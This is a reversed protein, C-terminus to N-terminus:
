RVPANRRPIPRYRSAHTFRVASISSLPPHRVPMANVRGVSQCPPSGSQIQEAV